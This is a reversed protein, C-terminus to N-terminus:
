QILQISNDANWDSTSTMKWCTIKYFASATDSDKRNGPVRANGEYMQLTPQSQHYTDSDERDSGATASSDPYTIQIRVELEQSKNVATQFSYILFGDSGTIGLQQRVQQYYSDADSTSHYCAQLIKETEALKKEAKNSARYYATTHGALTQASRYSGSATSLSLAALTVMCLVIFIMLLSVSGINTVPFKRKNM